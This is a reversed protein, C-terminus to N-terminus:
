LSLCGSALDLFAVEAYAPPTEWKIGREEGTTLSRWKEWCPNPPMLDRSEVWLMAKDAREVPEPMPDQWTLGFRECIAIMLLDEAERYLRGIESYRKVPRPLDVLYAEAADHLLAWAHWERPCLELVRISHEAVSYFHKVHGSYRCQNSLAHAIDEICIEEPRPDLPYFEVGTFTQIWDGKRM